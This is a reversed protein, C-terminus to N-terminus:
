ISPNLSPLEHGAVTEQCNRFRIPFLRPKIQRQFDAKWEKFSALPKGGYISKDLQAMLRAVKEPHAKPHCAVISRGLYQLDANARVGLHKSALIQLAHGWTQPDDEQEVARLCYWLKWSVPLNRGIWTRIRHFYRRPSLKAIVAAVPQYLDGLLERSLTTLWHTAPNRGSGLMVKIWSFLVLLVVSVLPAWFWLQRGEPLSFFGESETRYTNVPGQVQLMRAPLSAIAAQGTRLDWWPISLSPILLKGGYRPVLTFTQTRSGLLDLGNASVQGQTQTAGPYINFDESHLQRAVSPLQAGTAGTASLTITVNLPEGAKARQTNPTESTLRLDYLPLWPEIEAPRPQVYLKTDQGAQISFQKGSTYKGDIQVPPLEITGSHLPILLYTYETVVSYGDMGSITYNGPKGLQKLVVNNSQPLHPAAEKLNNASFIRVRYIINQQVLPRRESISTEVKPPKQAPTAQQAYPYRRSGQPPWYPYAPRNPQASGRANPNPGPQIPRYVPSPWYSNIPTITPSPNRGPTTQTQPWYPPAAHVPDACLMLWALALGLGRINKLLM